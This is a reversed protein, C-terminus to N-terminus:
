RREDLHITGDFDSEKWVVPRNMEPEIRMRLEGNQFVRVTGSSESV